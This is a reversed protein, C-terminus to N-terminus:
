PSFKLLYYALDDHTLNAMAAMERVTRSTLVISKDASRKEAWKQIREYKKTTDEALARPNIRVDLVSPTRLQELVAGFVDLASIDLIDCIEIVRSIEIRRVGLEWSILTRDVVGGALQAALQRRTIGAKERAQRLEQGLLLYTPDNRANGRVAGQAGM